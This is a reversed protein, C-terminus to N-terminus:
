NTVNANGTSYDETPLTAYASTAGLPTTAFNIADLQLRYSGAGVGVTAAGDGPTYTVSITLTESDGENVRYENGELSASSSVSAVASGTTVTGVGAETHAVNGNSANIISYEISTAAFQSVFAEVEFADVEVTMEFEAYDNDDLDVVVVNKSPSSMEANIGEVLLTHVDGTASGGAVLDEAGEAFINAGNVLAQVTEGPNYNIGNASQFELVLEVDVNDGNAITFDKDIDFTLTASTTGGGTLLSIDDFKEGDILLYADKVVNNYFDTTTNVTLSILDLDLDASDNDAELEFTFVTYDDSSRDDEVKLTTSSPDDNSSKVDLEDDQGETEITFQATDPTAAAEQDLYLTLGSEDVFRMSNDLLTFEWNAQFDAGLDISGSIDAAITIVHTEDSAFVENIGTIRFRTEDNVISDDWDSESDSNESAIEEGDVMLYINDFVEWADNEDAAEIGVYDVIVDFRELVVAGGEELEFEVEALDAKNAGEEITDDDADDVNTNSFDAEEGENLEFVPADDDGDVPDVVIVPACNDAVYAALAARSAPGFAGDPSTGVLSQLFMTGATTMPGTAGDLALAPLYGMDNIVGQLALTSSTDPVDCSTSSVAGTDTGVNEM